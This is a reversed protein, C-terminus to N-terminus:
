EKSAQLTSLKRTSKQLKVENPDDSKTGSAEQKKKRTVQKTFNNLFVNVLRAVASELLQTRDEKCATCTDFLAAYPDGDMEALIRLFLTHLVVRQRDGHLLKAGLSNESTDDTLRHFTLFCTSAASVFTPSPRTLGGRNVFDFFSSDTSHFPAATDAPVFAQAPSTSVAAATVNHPPPVTQQPTPMTGTSDAAQSPAATDASVFAQACADCEIDATAKYVAFGAVKYMGQASAGTWQREDLPRPPNEILSTFPALLDELVDGSSAAQM